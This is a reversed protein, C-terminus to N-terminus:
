LIRAVQGSLYIYIYMTQLTAIHTFVGIGDVEDDIIKLLIPCVVMKRPSADGISLDGM